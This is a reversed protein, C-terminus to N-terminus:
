HHGIFLDTLITPADSSGKINSFIKSILTSRSCFSLSFFAHLMEGYFHILSIRGEGYM